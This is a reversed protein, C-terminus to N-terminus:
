CGLMGEREEHADGAVDRLGIGADFGALPIAFFIFADLEVIFGEANEAHAADAGFEGAAGHGKAHTYQGVIGVERYATGSAHLHFEDFIDVREKRLGIEDAHVHREGILGAVHEVGATQGNAFFANADHIASTASEHIFGGEAFSQLGAM